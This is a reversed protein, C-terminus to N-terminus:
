GADSTATVTAAGGAPVNAPGSYTTPAGSVTNTPFVTGCTAATCATGNAANVAWTVGENGTDNALTATFQQSGTVLVSAVLPTMSVSIPGAPAGITISLAHSASQPP